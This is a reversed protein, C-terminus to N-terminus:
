RAGVAEVATRAQALAGDIADDVCDATSSESLPFVSALQECAENVVQKVRRELEAHMSGSSTRGAEHRVLRPAVM